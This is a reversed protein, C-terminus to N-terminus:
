PMKERIYAFQLMGDAISSVVVLPRSCILILVCRQITQTNKLAAAASAWNSDAVRVPTTVSVPPATMWPALTRTTFSPVFRSAVEVLLSSPRNTKGVRRGPEYRPAADALPIAAATE